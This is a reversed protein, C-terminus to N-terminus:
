RLNSVLLVSVALIAFLIATVRLMGNETRLVGTLAVAAPIQFPIDYLVRSMIIVNGFYLPLIGISVFTAVFLWVPAKMRALFIGVLVLSLYIFNSYFGGTHVQITRVLNDWRIAFQSIGADASEAVALDREIGPEFGFLFSRLIDTGICAGLVLFLSLLLRRQYIRKITAIILFLILFITIITWTYLHTFLLVFLCITFVFLNMRESSKLFRFLFLISLYAPILAIWNAFFGAYMGILVQFGTASLFAALVSSKDDGTIERCLFYTIVILIPTVVLPIGLEIVMSQDINEFTKILLHIFFLSVARDGDSIDLFLQKVYEIPNVSQDIIAIWELYADTDVGINRQEGPKLQPIAILIISIAIFLILFLFKTKVKLTLVDKASGTGIYNKIRSYLRFYDMLITIPVSMIILFVLLPSLTSFLLFIQYFPDYIMSDVGVLSVIISVCTLAIFSICLYNVIFQYHKEPSEVLLRTRFSCSLILLISPLSALAVVILWSNYFAAYGALTIVIATTVAVIMSRGKLAFFLWTIIGAIIFVAMVIGVHDNSPFLDHFTTRDQFYYVDPQFSYGVLLFYNVIVLAATICASIRRLPNGYGVAERLLLPKSIM